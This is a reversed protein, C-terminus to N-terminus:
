SADHVVVDGKQLPNVAKRFTATNCDAVPDGNVHLDNAVYDPSVGHSPPGNDEIYMIDWGGLFNAPENKTHTITFVVIARNGTVTMCKVGGGFFRFSM